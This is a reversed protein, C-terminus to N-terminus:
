GVNIQMDLCPFRAMRLNVNTIAAVKSSPATAAGELWALAAGPM